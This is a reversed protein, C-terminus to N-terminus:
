KIKTLFNFLVWWDFHYFMLAMLGFECLPKMFYINEFLYVICVSFAWVVCVFLNNLHELSSFPRFFGSALGSEGVSFFCYTYFLQTDKFICFRVFFNNLKESRQIVTFYWSTNPRSIGIKKWTIIFLIHKRM